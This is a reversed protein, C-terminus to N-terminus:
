CKARKLEREVNARVDPAAAPYKRDVEQYTACAQEKAGLANLAVGLRLLADPARSSKSYDTSLKLFQEAAERQRGQRAYSEGLFYTADPILRDKPYKQIFAQFGDIAADYQGGKYLSITSDFEGRTGGAAARVGADPTVAADQVPPTAAPAPRSPAISNPTLDLPAHPPTAMAPSPTTQSVSAVAVNPAPRSPPTTGLPRPAGPADPNVGPDFADSRRTAPKPADAGITEAVPAADALVTVPAGTDGADGRKAPAPRTGSAPARQLDQFRFDVDAQMKRMQDDLKRNQFQLQEVQGTLARLQDELRTIRILLAAPDGSGQGDDAPADPDQQALMVPARHSADAAWVVPTAVLLLAAAGARISMFVNPLFM